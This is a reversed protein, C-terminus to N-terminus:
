VPKFYLSDCVEVNYSGRWFEYDFRRIQRRLRSYTAGDGAECALSAFANLNRTSEPYAKLLANFGSRLRPWSVKTQSFITGNYAIDNIVHWYMRVYLIDHSKDTDAAHSSFKEFEEWSGYWKPMLFNGAFIYLPYFDPFKAIGESLTKLMEDKDGSLTGVNFIYTAYWWPQNDLKDKNAVLLRNEETLYKRFISDATANVSEAYGPGRVAWAHSKLMDCRLMILYTKELPTLARSERETMQAEAQAWDTTGDFASDMGSYIALLRPRGDIFREDNDLAERIMKDLGTANFFVFNTSADDETKTFDILEPIGRPPVTHIVTVAGDARAPISSLVLLLPLVCLLAGRLFIGPHRISM